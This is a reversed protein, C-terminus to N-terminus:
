GEDIALRLDAGAAFHLALGRRVRPLSAGPAFIRPSSAALTATDRSSETIAPRTSRTRRAPPAGM